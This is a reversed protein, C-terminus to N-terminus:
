KRTGYNEGQLNCAQKWSFLINNVAFTQQSSFPNNSNYKATTYCTYYKM